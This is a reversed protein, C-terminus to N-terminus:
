DIHVNFISANHSLKLTSEQSKKSETENHNYSLVAETLCKPILRMINFISARKELCKALTENHNYLLSLRPFMYKRRMKSSM